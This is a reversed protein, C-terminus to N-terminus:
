LAMTAAKTREGFIGDAIGPDYGQGILFFQWKRVDDGRDGIRLVNM